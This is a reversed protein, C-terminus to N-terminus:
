AKVAPPPPAPPAPPTSDAAMFLGVAAALLAGTAPWNPVTAPDADLMAALATGVAGLAAAVGAATTRWNKM